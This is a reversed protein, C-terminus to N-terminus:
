FARDNLYKPTLLPKETAVRRHYGKEHFVKAITRKDAKIGLEKAAEEFPKLRQAHSSTAHHVLRRRNPADLRLQHGRPKTPTICQHVYTQVTPYPM